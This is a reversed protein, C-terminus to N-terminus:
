AVRPQLASNPHPGHQPYTRHIKISQFNSVDSVHAQSRHFSSILLDLDSVLIHLHIGFDVQGQSSPKNVVSGLFVIYM